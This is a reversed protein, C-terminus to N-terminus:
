EVIPNALEATAVGDHIAQEYPRLAGVAFSELMKPTVAVPSHKITDALAKGAPKAPDFLALLDAESLATLGMDRGARILAAAHLPPLNPLGLSQALAQNVNQVNPIVLNFIARALVAGMDDFDDPALSGIFASATEAPSKDDKLAITLIFHSATYIEDTELYGIKKEVAAKLAATFTKLANIGAAKTRGPANLAGKLTALAPKIDNAISSFKDLDFVKPKISQALIIASKLDDASDEDLGFTDVKALADARARVFNDIQANIAAEAEEPTECPVKGLALSDAFFECSHVCGRVCNLQKVVPAPLGLKQSFANAIREPLSPCVSDLKSGIRVMKELAPKFDDFAKSIEEPTKARAIADALAPNRKLLADGKRLAEAYLGPRLPLGLSTATEALRRTAIVQAGYSAIWTRFM